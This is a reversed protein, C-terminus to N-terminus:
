FASVKGKSNSVVLTPVNHSFQTLITAINGSNLIKQRLQWM